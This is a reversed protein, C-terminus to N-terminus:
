SSGATSSSRAGDIQQYVVPARQLVEGGPLSLHLNGDADVNIEDAGEIGLRILRPDSGPNVVFDYELHGQDGYYALSVGPYVDQYEVRAYQRVNTRWRNRDRGLFYNSKGPLEGRGEIAPRPNSGLLRMRVVSGAAEPRRLVLVSETSTLFLTYGSGRALFKVGPDTQGDNPEFHLPLNGYGTQPRRQEGPVAADAVAEGARAGATLSVFAILALKSHSTMTKEEAVRRTVRAPAHHL